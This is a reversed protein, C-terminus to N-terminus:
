LQKNRQCRDKKKRDREIREKENPFYRELMTLAEQYCGEAEPIRGLAAYTDALYEMSEVVTRSAPGLFELKIKTSKEFFIVAKKFEDGASQEEGRESFRTGLRYHCVGQHFVIHAWNPRLEPCDEATSGAEWALEMFMRCRSSDETELCLEAARQYNSALDENIRSLDFAGFEDEYNAQYNGQMAKEKLWLLVAIAKETYGLAQQLDPCCPWTHARANWSYARALEGSEEAGSDLMSQLSREFWPVAESERGSNRYCTALIRACYGTHMSAEGYESVCRRYLISGYCIAEEFYGIQWLFDVICAWSLMHGGFFNRDAFYAALSRINGAHPRNLSDLRGWAQYTWKGIKRLLVSCNEADPALKVHVVERVLPHLSLDRGNRRVWGRSVLSSIDETLCPHESWERYIDISIGQIDMLSLERLIQREEDSLKSMNFVTCIHGFANQRGTYGVVPSGTQNRFGKEYQRLLEEGSCFGARMQKALLEVMYTHGDVIEILKKVSAKDAESLVEGYHAEFVEMMREMGVDTRLDGVTNVALHPYLPHSNRTTIIVTCRISELFLKLDPDEDVDFNDLIMMTHEDTIQPLIELKRHFFSEQSEGEARILGRIQLKGAVTRCLSDSYTLFVAQPYEKRHRLAFQKALESKGIGGIGQLFLVSTGAAFQNEMESMLEERGRFNPLALIRDPQLRYDEVRIAAREPFQFKPDEDCIEELACDLDRRLEECSRYRDSHAPDGNDCLCRKLIGSIRDLFGQSYVAKSKGLLLSDRVMEPIRDYYKPHYGKRSSMEQTLIVAYFLSAGIAYLDTQVSAGSTLQPDDFGKTVQVRHLGDYIVPRISDTDLIIVRDPRYGSKMPIVGFNPPKIDTCLLGRDHLFGVARTLSRIASLQQRLSRRPDSIEGPARRIEDCLDQFTRIEPQHTFLYVTGCDNGPDQWGWYIEFPMLFEALGSLESERQMRQLRVQVALHEERERIFKEYAESGPPAILQRDDNRVLFSDKEPYFEKLIGKRNGWEAEYCVSCAGEGSMGGILFTRGFRGRDGAAYITIRDGRHLYDRAM